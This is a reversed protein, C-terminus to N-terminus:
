EVWKVKNRKSDPYMGLFVSQLEDNIFIGDILMNSVDGGRVIGNPFDELVQRLVGHKDVYLKGTNDEM